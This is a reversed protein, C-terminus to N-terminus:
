LINKLYDVSIKCQEKEKLIYDWIKEQVEPEGKRVEYNEILCILNAIPSLKNRIDAGMANLQEQPKM